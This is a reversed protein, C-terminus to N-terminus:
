ATAADGHLLTSILDNKPERRRQQIVRELVGQAQTLREAIHEMSGFDGKYVTSPFMVSAKTAERMTQHDEAPVGLLDFIVLSPLPYAFESVFDCTGAREMKDLLWDTRKQISTRMEAVVQPTFANM